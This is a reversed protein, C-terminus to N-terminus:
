LEPVVTISSVNQSYIGPGILPGSLARSASGSGTWYLKEITDTGTSSIYIYGNEDSAVARPTNIISSNLYIQTGSTGDTNVAWISHDGARTVILKGSKSHYAIGVPTQANFPAGTYHTVCNGDKDYISLRGSAAMSVVAVYRTDPIFTIGYPTALACSGTTAAIFPNGVRQYASDFKEIQATNAEVVYLSGDISDRAMQRLPASSLGTHTITNISRSVLDVIHLADVGEVSVAVEQPPIFVSGTGFNSGSSFLDELVAKFAGSSSFHSIIGPGTAPDTAVSTIILDGSLTQSEFLSLPEERKCALAASLITVLILIPTANRLM